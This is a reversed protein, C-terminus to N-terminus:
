RASQDKINQLGKVNVFLSIVYLIFACCHCKLRCMFVCELSKPLRKIKQKDKKKDFQEPPIIEKTIHCCFINLFFFFYLVALLILDKVVVLFFFYILM